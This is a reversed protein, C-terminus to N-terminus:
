TLTLFRVADRRNSPFLVVSLFLAAVDRTSSQIASTKRHGSDSDDEGEDGSGTEGPSLINWRPRGIGQRPRGRGCRRLRAITDAVAGCLLFAVL